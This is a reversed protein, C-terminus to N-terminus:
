SCQTEKELSRVAQCRQLQIDQISTSLVDPYQAGKNSVQAVPDLAVKRVHTTELSSHDEPKAVIPRHDISNKAGPWRLPERPGHLQCDQVQSVPNDGALGEPEGGAFGKTVLFTKTSDEVKEACM